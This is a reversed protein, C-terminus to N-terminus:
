NSGSFQMRLEMIREREFGFMAAGYSVGGVLVLAILALLPPWSETLLLTGFVAIGMVTSGVTAPVFQRLIKSMPVEVLWSGVVLRLLSVIFAIVAHGVSVAFASEQALVYLTPGLLAFEFVATKWLIDPRGVAKYIDGINWSVSLFIGYIALAAMIPAAESWEKGFVVETFVESILAMGIGAPFTVLSVYRIAALMGQRLEDRNEQILSYAPFLVQAIVICLNIIVIEPIRFAVTYLGLSADGLFRGIFVYDINAQFNSILSDISIQYGYRFLEIAIPISFVFKPRWDVVMWAVIAFATRGVVQGIVLAWIGQGSLAMGISVIGKSVAEALSPIIRRSFKMEKQILADHTAGFSSLIFSLSLIPLISTVQPERFFDAVLPAIGLTVLWFLINLLINLWFATDAAEEVDGQRQILATGIGLDRVADLFTMATLAFGVIGFESQTLLRALVATTVLVMGKTLGYSLYTWAVSTVTKKALSDSM